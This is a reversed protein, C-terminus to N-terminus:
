RNEVLATVGQTRSFHDASLRAVFDTSAGPSAPVVLKITRGSQSWAADGTLALLLLALLARRINMRHSWRTAVAFSLAHDRSFHISLTARPCGEHNLTMAPSTGAMGSPFARHGGLRSARCLAPCSPPSLPALWSPFAKAVLGRM